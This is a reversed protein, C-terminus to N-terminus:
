APVTAPTGLWQDIETLLSKQTEPPATSALVSSRALDALEADTFGGEPGILLNAPERPALAPLTEFAGGRGELVTRWRV